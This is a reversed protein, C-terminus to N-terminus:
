LDLATVYTNTSLLPGVNKVSNRTIAVPYKLGPLYRFFKNLVWLTLIVADDTQCSKTLFTLTQWMVFCAGSGDVTLKADRVTQAHPEYPHSAFAILISKTGVGSNELLGRPLQM